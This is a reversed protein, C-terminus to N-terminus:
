FLLFENMQQTSLNLTFLHGFLSDKPVNVELPLVCPLLGVASVSCTHGSLYSSGPPLTTEWDSHLSLSHDFTASAMVLGLYPSPCTTLQTMQLNKSLLSLATKIISYYPTPQTSVLNCCSPLHIPLSPAYVCTYVVRQVLKVTSAWIEGGRSTRDHQVLRHVSTSPPLLRFCM